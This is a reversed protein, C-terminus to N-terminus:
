GQSYIYIDLWHHQICKASLLEPCTQLTVSNLGESSLSPSLPFRHLSKVQTMSFSKLVCLQRQLPLLSRSFQEHRGRLYKVQSRFFGEGFAVTHCYFSVFDFLVSHFLHSLFKSFHAQFTSHLIAIRTLCCQGRRFVNVPARSSLALRVSFDTDQIFRKLVPVASPQLTSTTLPCQHPMM